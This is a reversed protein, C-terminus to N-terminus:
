TCHSDNTYQKPRHLFPPSSFFSGQATKNISNELPEIAESILYEHDLIDHIKDGSLVRGPDRMADTLFKRNSKSKQNGDSKVHMAEVFLRAMMYPPFNAVKSLAVISKGEHCYQKVYTSLNARIKYM